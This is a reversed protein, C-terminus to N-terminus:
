DDIRITDSGIVHSGTQLTVTLRKKPDIAGLVIGARVSAVFASRPFEIIVRQLDGGGDGDDDFDKTGPPVVSTAPIAPVGGPLRLSLSSVLPLLLSVNSMTPDINRVVMRVSKGASKLNLTTPRFLETWNKVTPMASQTGVNGAQDQARCDVQLSGDLRGALPVTASFTASSSAGLSVGDVFCEVQAFDVDVVDVAVLMSRTLVQGDSPYLLFSAPASNDAELSLQASAVTNGAADVATAQVAFPGDAGLTRTDFTASCPSAACSGVQRGNVLVAVSALGSTADAANAAITIVGGLYAGAAPSVVAVTPPTNDVVLTESLTAANGVGDVMLAQIPHPGDAITTTDLSATWTIGAGLQAVIPPLAGSQGADVLFVVSAVGTGGDPADVALPVTGRGFDMTGVFSGSPPTKDYTVTRLLTTTRSAEDTVTFVITDSGEV